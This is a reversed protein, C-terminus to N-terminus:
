DFIAALAEMTVFEDNTITRVDKVKWEDGLAEAVSHAFEDDLFIMGCVHGFLYKEGSADWGKFLVGIGGANSPKHVIFGGNKKVSNMFCGM